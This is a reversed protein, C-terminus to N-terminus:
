AAASCILLRTFRRSSPTTCRLVTSRSSGNSRHCRAAVDAFCATAPISADGMRPATHAILLRPALPSFRDIVTEAGMGPAAISLTAGLAAVALAAVVAQADNRMIAVVRDGECVGVSALADSLRMIQNRLQGRTLRLQRGDVHCTTIAPRADDTISSGLLNQAYNLEVNPFFV